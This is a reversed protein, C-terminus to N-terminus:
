FINHIWWLLKELPNGPNYGHEVLLLFTDYGYVASLLSTNPFGDMVLSTGISELNLHTRVNELRERPLPDTFGEM